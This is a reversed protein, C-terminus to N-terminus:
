RQPQATRLVDAYATPKDTIRAAALITDVVQDELVVSEVQQLQERNGYYWNVVESPDEYSEAVEDILTKVRAADVVLSQSRIVEGVLLGLTVSRRAQESFLEDPLMSPDVNRGGFQQMMGERQRQIENGILAKPVDLSNAALLGDFVQTKVSNKIAQRLEREM